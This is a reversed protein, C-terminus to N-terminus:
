FFRLVIQAVALSLERFVLFVKLIVIAPVVDEPGQFTAADLFVGPLVGVLEAPQPGRSLVAFLAVHRGQHAIEDAGVDGLHVILQRGVTFPQAAALPDHELIFIALMAPVAGRPARHDHQAAALGLLKPFDGLLLLAHVAHFGPGTGDTSCIRRRLFLGFILRHLILQLSIDIDSKLSIGKKYFLYMCQFGKRKQSDRNTFVQM